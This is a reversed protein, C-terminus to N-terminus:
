GALRAAPTEVLSTFHGHVRRAVARVHAELQFFGIDGADSGLVARTLARRLGEPAEGADFRGETTLRLFGQIRRWMRLADILDAAVAGDLLGAAALNGIATATDTSLIGPHEHAHRLQLYQAIFSADIQGGRVYKTNWVDDTGFEREIRGRMEAVDRLLRDPDRPRTLVDRVADALRAAFADPGAIVRARTLAMHEWTWASDRQYAVFGPFSVALPGANGSPRLRMDVEYLQGEGTPATIAGILRQTLRTYYEGPTLPRPGDSAAVGEPVDYVIILDLDSRLTMQRSGLKGLALIAMGTGPADGFGGHRREFEGRVLPVLAGVSLDAVDSLFPGCADGRTINRLIHVGARFRQDNAWHRDVDLAQEFSGASSLVTELESRLQARDPLPGFFDPTLVADLRAPSRALVEALRPATGMIEAVLELLAPNSYFMSFLQVGAPLRGLFEDFKMFADDPSPTRGLAELLTPALETLLERARTSRTAKYRGHHWGRITASVGAPNGFGLRQLTALTEPDDETGTFVLNGPGSLPPAEEFLAAYHEQVLSLAASLADRFTGADEYGLFTALRAIGAADSPLQHTQQDDIMQLRHEVRRLLGYAGILADATSAEVRGAEVLALLAERTSSRRLTPDRGGFILQQTQAFFEIERIGGRGIKVNHGEITATRFGRHANIQRKISHIDQIAAFDLNRRWVFSGLVDLLHRAAEPDGAVPRAKIMAAREWNQGLSGYYAEAASVSVALPTAGPDPRLRLDTRFVYGDKTREEMIRSLDRALRIFTRAMTEPRATRVVQDDYLVILDIDSSYNLERAGLKGMGLVILGTGRTPDEPDPLVLAGSEGAKRLLHAAALRLATEALDSLAGTVRELPWLGGIDALAILLAARRKAIRLGSMLRATDGERSLATRLESLLAPFVADCGEEFLRRAFPLDLVLSQTLHPSNGFVADLVARGEPAAAFAQAFARVAEDEVRAAGEHWREFGLRVADLDSPKPLSPFEVWV